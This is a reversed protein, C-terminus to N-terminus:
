WAEWQESHHRRARGRRLEVVIFESKPSGSGGFKPRRILRVGRRVHCESWLRAARTVGHLVDSRLLAVTRPAWVLAARVFDVDLDHEYPPNQLVLDVEGPALSLFDGSRVDYTEPGPASAFDLLKAVNRPDADCVTLHRPTMYDLMPLVLAGKGAAPELVRLWPSPPRCSWRWVREALDAPTYWQALDLRRQGAEMGALFPQTV